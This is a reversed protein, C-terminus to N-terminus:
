EQSEVCQDPNKMMNLATEFKTLCQACRSTFLMDLPINSRYSGIAETTRDEHEELWTFDNLCTRLCCADFPNVYHINRGIRIRQNGENTTFSNVHIDPIDEVEDCTGDNFSKPYNPCTNENHELRICPDVESQFGERTKNLIKLIVILILIILVYITFQKVNM